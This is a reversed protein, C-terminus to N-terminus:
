SSLNGESSWGRLRYYDKTLREMEERTISGGSELPEKFFREPLRDDAATLGEQLNFRRAGSDTVRKALSQLGAKDLKLGTTLFIITSLEEWAYFNRYFRCTILSDHLTCRDEFDRFLEAKGDHQNPDILGALEAKYFTSRLHSPAGTASRMLLAWERSMFRLTKLGWSSAPPKSAKPWFRESAKDAPSKRFCIRLM